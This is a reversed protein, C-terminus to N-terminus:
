ESPGDEGGESEVQIHEFGTVAVKGAIPINQPRKGDFFHEIEKERQPRAKEPAHFDEHGNQAGENQESGNGARHERMPAFDPALIGIESSHVGDSEAAERREENRSDM